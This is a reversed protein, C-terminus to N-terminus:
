ILKFLKPCYWINRKSKVSLKNAVFLLNYITKITIGVYIRPTKRRTSFSCQIYAEEVWVEKENIYIM